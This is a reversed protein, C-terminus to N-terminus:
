AVFRARAIRPAPPTCPPEHAMDNPDPARLRHHNLRAQSSPRRHLFSHAHARVCARVCANTRSHTSPRAQTRTPPRRRRSSTSQPACRPPTPPASSMSISSAPLPQRRPRACRPSFPRRHPKSPGTPPNPPPPHARPRLMTGADGLSGRTGMTVGMVETGGGLKGRAIRM